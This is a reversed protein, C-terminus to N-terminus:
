TEIAVRLIIICSFHQYSFVYEWYYILIITQALALKTSTKKNKIPRLLNQRKFRLDVTMGISLLSRIRITFMRAHTCTRLYGM